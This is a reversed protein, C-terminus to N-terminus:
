SPQPEQRQGNPRQTHSPSTITCTSDVEPMSDHNLGDKSRSSLPSEM